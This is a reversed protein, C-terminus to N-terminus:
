RSEENRRAPRAVIGYAFLLMITTGAVTDWPTPIVGGERMATVAIVVALLIAGVPDDLIRKTLGSVM